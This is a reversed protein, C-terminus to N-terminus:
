VALDGSSKRAGMSEEQVGVDTTQNFFVDIGTTVITNMCSDVKM